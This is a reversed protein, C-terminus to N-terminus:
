EPLFIWDRRFFDIACWQPQPNSSQHMILHIEDVTFSKGFTGGLTFGWCDSSIGVSWNNGKRRLLLYVTSAQPFFTSARQTTSGSDVSMLRHQYGSNFIYEGRIADQGDSTRAEIAVFANGGGRIGHRFKAVFSGEGSGIDTAKSLRAVQNGSSFYARYHSPWATHSITPANTLSSAARASARYWLRHPNFCHVRRM